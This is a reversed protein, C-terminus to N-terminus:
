ATRIQVVNSPPEEEMIAGMLAAAKVDNEPQAHAYWDLTISANAHGMRNQVTKVDVGAALLQTAQTHRLEHYRLGPLGARTRFERWWREFNPISGSGGEDNCCIFTDPGQERGIKGLMEAQTRKWWSLREATHADINISRNGAKTKPSQLKGSFSLSKSVSIVGGWEGGREALVVDSWKLGHVEGLRMGTALGIRVAELRGLNGLGYLRGRPGKKANRAANWEERRQEKARYGQEMESEESDIARLLKVCEARGLSKRDSDEIKPPDVRKCPNRLILDYREAKDMIQRMTGHMRNMTTESYPKGTKRKDERIADYLREVMQPTIDKLKVNGLYGSLLRVTQEDRALTKERLAGTTKRAKCWERAFESFGMSESEFSLGSEYERRIADRAKRADSKTGRVVRKIRQRKGTVPDAGLCLVIEWRKPSYSKGNADLKERPEADGYGM